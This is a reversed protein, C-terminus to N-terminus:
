ARVRSRIVFPMAEAQILANLKEIRSTLADAYASWQYSEGDVSQDPKLVLNGTYSGDNIAAIAADVNAPTPNVAALNVVSLLQICTTKAAQLRQLNTM